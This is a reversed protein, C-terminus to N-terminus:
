RQDGQRAFWQALAEIQADDYGKMLRTMVTADPVQGRQLARLRQRLEAADRGQLRPIPGGSPAEPAHCNLCTGALLAADLAGPQAGALAPALLVLLALWPVRYLPPSPIHM